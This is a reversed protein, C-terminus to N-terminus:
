SDPWLKSLPSYEGRDWGWMKVRVSEIHTVGGDEFYEFIFM